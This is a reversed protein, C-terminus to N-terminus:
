NLINFSWFSSLVQKIQFDANLLSSKGSTQVSFMPLLTFIILCTKRREFNLLFINSFITYHREKLHLLGTKRSFWSSSIRGKCSIQGHISPLFIYNHLLFFFFFFFFFFFVRMWANYFLRAVKQASPIVSFQIKHHTELERSRPHISYKENANSGHGNM